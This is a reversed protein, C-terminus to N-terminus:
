FFILGLSIDELAKEVALIIVLRKVEKFQDVDSLLLEVDFLLLENFCKSYRVFFLKKIREGHHLISVFEFFRRLLGDAEFCKVTVIIASKKCLKWRETAVM